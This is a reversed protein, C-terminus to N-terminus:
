RDKWKELIQERPTQKLTDFDGPFMELFMELNAQLESDSNGNKIKGITSDEVQIDWDIRLEHSVDSLIRVIEKIDLYAMYTDVDIDDINCFLKTSGFLKGDSDAYESIWIPECWWERNSGKIALNSKIGQIQDDSVKGSTIYTLSVGM